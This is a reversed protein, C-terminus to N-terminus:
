RNDGNVFCNRKRIYFVYRPKNTFMCECKRATPMDTLERWSDNSAGYMLAKKKSGDASGTSFIEDGNKLSVLCHGYLPIPSEASPRIPSGYM